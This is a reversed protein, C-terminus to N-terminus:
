PYCKRAWEDRRNRTNFALPLEPRERGRPGPRRSDLSAQADRSPQGSLPSRLPQRPFGIRPQPELGQGLSDTHSGPVDKDPTQSWPEGAVEVEDTTKASLWGRGQPVRPELLDGM